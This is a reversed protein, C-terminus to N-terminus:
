EIVEDAHALLTEMMEALFLMSRQCNARSHSAHTEFQYVVGNALSGRISTRQKPNLPRLRM